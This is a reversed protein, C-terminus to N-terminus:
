KRPIGLSRPVVSSPRCAHSSFQVTLEPSDNVHDESGSRRDTEEKVQDARTVGEPEASCREELFGGKTVMRFTGFKRRQVARPNPADSDETGM